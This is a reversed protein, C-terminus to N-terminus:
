DKAPVQYVVAGCHVGWKRHEKSRVAYYVTLVRGDKLVVSSPYGCDGSTADDVLSFRRGWDFRGMADGVLGRVGFPGVRYGVVLLVRGDPLLVLDAPHVAAPTLKRPESWSRGGDKSRTLWVEGADATRMAALLTGSPLRALGTENFRKRGPQGHRKWTKGQDTSRYLYSNEEGGAVKEGRKRVAGGYVNMLMSGGPLTLIKGYPSGWGIDTVDIEAPESWTKGGDKSRTVWTNIPKDLKDNYNGHEDYRATRWFGVVLTGDKAEGFAPNRDDAPSDVVVAPKSWTKGDDKSFVIDLRGGIGLHLAGGRLVVAIRGDRLRLAVPFYGQGQVVLSREVPRQGAGAAELCWGVLLAACALSALWSRRAM